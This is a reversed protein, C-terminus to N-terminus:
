GKRARPHAAEYVALLRAEDLSTYKQTTSLSAHGLLEQIARLDGGSQLVHTAFSHRLAHPTASPPLGLQGRLNQMLKQAYRASLPKGRTSLFLPADPGQVYPCLRLYAKIAAGIEKLLPVRREKRGKGIVRLAKGEDGDRRKLSLAESIRLGAGYLLTLLAEDRAQEWAEERMEGAHDLAKAAGEISLPKPLSAPIKPSRILALEAIEIAEHRSLYRAFSRVAALARALGRPGLGNARRRALFARIDAAKLTSLGKTTLGGRHETIFGLFSATDDGYARVTLPSLRREHSLHVLWRRRLDDPNM